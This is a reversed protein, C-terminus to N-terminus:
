ATPHRLYQSWAARTEAVATRWAVTDPKDKLEPHCGYCPEPDLYYIVPLSTDNVHRPCPGSHDGKLPSLTM